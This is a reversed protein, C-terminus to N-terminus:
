VKLVVRYRAKGAELHAFAENIDKLDFEETMAEIQHRAAFELMNRTILPTGLASGSLSKEGFVLTGPRVSLPEPVAGVTHLKGMPALAEAFAQWNLPVDVTNLILDFKGTLKAMEEDSRSNAVHHAGLKRAEDAKDPSSSFATVECGWKNFFQLALHGLGGIGIVAVKASPKIGLQVLPYYVTIGACLLPGVKTFDLEKPIPTAWVWHCRVKDAFGGHRGAITIQVTDCLNHQGSLCSNCHMCSDSFWGLGVKDGVKVSKVVEGVNVVTGVIEHGAVLPFAARGWANQWMSLDSHCLGCYEVRIDVEEPGIDSPEYSFPEFPASAAPAAFAKISHTMHNEM